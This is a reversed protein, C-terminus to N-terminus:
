QRLLSRTLGGGTSSQGLLLPLRDNHLTHRKCSILLQTCPQVRLFAEDHHSDRKMEVSGSDEVLM